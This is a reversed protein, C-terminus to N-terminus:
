KAEAKLVVVVVRRWCQTDLGDATAESIFKGFQRQVQRATYSKILEQDLAVIASREATVIYQAKYDGVRSVGGM